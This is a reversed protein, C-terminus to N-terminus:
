ISTAGSPENSASEQCPNYSRHTPESDDIPQVDEGENLSSLVVYRHQHLVENMTVSSDLMEGNAFNRWSLPVDSGMFDIDQPQDSFQM